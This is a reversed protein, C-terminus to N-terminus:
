FSMAAELEDFDVGIDEDKLGARKFPSAPSLRYDGKTFDMFKVDQISLPYFNKKQPYASDVAGIIVNKKFQVDPFYQALTDNGSNAGDGKIGYTNHLVLNNRFDFGTSPSGYATIVNGSQLVTNHNVEVGEAESIKMFAGEGGWREGSIDEFLNNRISVRATQGGPQDQSRGQINVGGSAHRIVNNSVEVDQTVSWSAGGDQNVSKLLIAYGVQADVWCNELINGEIIVRQANKLELLNKVSWEAGAYGGEGRKWELPKRLHNRRMEIDSPVLGEIKPDAGGFMVNEGAAELYNNVIKFPGAGNWGCIAQSDAGKEHIESIYSDIIATSTSNLAIGRRVTQTASGHIYCREIILDHPLQELEREDGEGLRVLNRNAKVDPAITMEIGILRFHHAGLATKLVPDINPSTLKAMSASNSPSVRTDVKLDDARSSRIIIYDSSSSPKSPLTFNGIYEAGAELEIVDGASAQDIASQLNRSASAGAAVRVKRGRAPVYKTDLFISPAVPKRQSEVKAAKWRAPNAVASDLQARSSQQMGAAACSTVAGVVLFTISVRLLKSLAMENM